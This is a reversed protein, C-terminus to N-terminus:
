QFKKIKPFLKRRGEIFKYVNIEDKKSNIENCFQKLEDFTYKEEPIKNIKMLCLYVYNLKLGLVKNIFAKYFEENAENSICMFYFRKLNPMKDINKYINNLLENNMIEGYICCFEFTNLNHFIIPCINNFIPFFTKINKIRKDITFDVKKLNTFNGTFLEINAKGIGKIFLENIKYNNNENITLMADEDEMLDFPFKLNLSLLNPFKNQFDYLSCNETFRMWM